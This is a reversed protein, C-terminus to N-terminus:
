LGFLEHCVNATRGIITRERTCSGYSYNTPTVQTDSGDLSSFPTRGTLLEHLTSGLGYIDSQPTFQNRMFQEPPMYNLTGVVTGTQTIDDGASYSADPGTKRGAQSTPKALEFDVLSSVGSEQMVLNGTKVDRHVFGSDHVHQMPSLASLCLKAAMATDRTESVRRLMGSMGLMPETAIYAHQDDLCGDILRPIQPHSLSDLANAERALRQTAEQEAPDVAKIFVRRERQHDFAHAAMLSRSHALYLIEYRRLPIAELVGSIESIDTAEELGEAVPRTEIM